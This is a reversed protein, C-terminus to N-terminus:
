RAGGYYWFRDEYENDAGWVVMVYAFNSVRVACRGMREDSVMFAMILEILYLKRSIYVLCDRWYKIM